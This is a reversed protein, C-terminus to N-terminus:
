LFNCALFAVHSAKPRIKSAAVEDAAGSVPGCTEATCPLTVLRGSIKLTNIELIIDYSGPEGVADANGSPM